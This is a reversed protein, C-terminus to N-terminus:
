LKRIEDYVRQSNNKDDHKYFKNKRNIYKESMVCDSEIMSIIKNKLTEYDYTVDGFGDNEYSFYGKDYLQGKFFEEEDFHNYIVPKNLYCFDFFTSSYDTILLDNSMFEYRYDPQTVMEVFENKDFDKIQGRIRYHLCFRIKYQKQKMVSLIDKDNLLKNYFNFFNSQKFEPSYNTEDNVKPALNARWTPCILISHHKEQNDELLDFRPLGTLKVVDKSYGYYPNSIISNYESEASTVFMDLNLRFKNLWPSLDDKIIGHQLFIIKYDFLDFMYQNNGGFPKYVHQDAQSSIIKDAIMFKVNYKFTDFSMVKGYQKIREFDSSKKDIVFYFDINKPKLECLYKFFAEGNDGAKDQRDSILWIEKKKKFQKKVLAVDRYIINKLKRKKLLLLQYKFEKLFRGEKKIYITSKDKSKSLVYDHYKRYSFKFNSIFSNPNFYEILTVKKDGYVAYFKLKNNKQLPIEFKYYTKFSEYGLFNNLRASYDKQVPIEFTEDNNECIIKFKDSYLLDIDGEISLRDDKINLVNINFRFPTENSLDFIKNYFLDYNKDYKYLLFLQRYIMGLNRQEYIIKDPIEKFFKISKNIYENKDNETFNEVLDLNAKARWQYDYMIYYHAFPLISYFENKCKDLVYRYSLDVTQVYWDRRIDKVQIASNNSYRKRYNHLSSSILGIKTKKGNIFLDFIYKGDESYKIKDDFLATKAIDTRIFASTVSLQIYNYNEVIDYVGDKNKKFKYDLSPYQNSAEFYRQRVGIIDIDKNNKFLKYAKKFVDLDWVDDSDLFNIFEGEAYKMGNNRAASVGANEQKIYLINNPYKQVYRLCIDESHDPSGDNVLIIQIKDFGITQNIVSEVTEELYEEVKYIPIVVSFLFKSM